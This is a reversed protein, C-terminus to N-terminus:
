GLIKKKLQRNLAQIKVTFLSPAVELNFEEFKHLQLTDLRQSKKYTVIPFAWQFHSIKKLYGSRLSKTKKNQIFQQNSIFLIIESLIEQSKNHQHNTLRIRHHYIVMRWWWKPVIKQSKSGVADHGLLDMNNPSDEIQITFVCFFFTHISWWPPERLVLELHPNFHIKRGSFFITLGKKGKKLYRCLHPPTFFLLVLSPSPVQFIYTNDELLGPPKGTKWDLFPAPCLQFSSLIQAQKKRPHKGYVGFTVM